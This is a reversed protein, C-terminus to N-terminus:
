VPRLQATTSLFTQLKAGSALLSLIPGFLLSQTLQQFLLTSGHVNASLFALM